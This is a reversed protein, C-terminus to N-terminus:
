KVTGKIDVTPYKIELIVNDPVSLYRGDLSMYKDINFTSQSYSGGSKNVLKVNVTDVVGRVKNLETFVDTIYFREGIYMTKNFKLVLAQIANDLVEYRNVDENSVVEFEIGINVVKADLIDVTDNIMRYRNLWIKLNDKIASNSQILKGQRDESVVYMNLNRKLSDQDRVVRCRKVSGFHSPMAYTIAEYDTATVARNQTPFINLAQRRIEDTTPNRVSGIIPEENFAEISSVVSRAAQTNTVTPDNFEVIPDIVSSVAGVGANSSNTTNARYTITLTTNAPGIGLKDTGILDSPDFATDSVYDKAHRQLVVNSPEALTPTSVENDSGYGFQLTTSTQNKESTFRRAAIFPRIISPANDRTNADKNPVSKYVVDHTLYEVEFYENGEADFVSIIEVINSRNITVKKFREFAGITVTTTAFQGSIVQGQAKVAWSSPTGDASTRAAVIQNSPNDFRVDEMLIFSGGTSSLVSNRKLIPMYRTDPGLGTSNAPVIAYLSVMGTTSQAGKFKYGMQKAIRIVNEYENATDLFSENVQYDLYFSLVDGVYAVTDLMLSGFSAESFDQFSQPYYRKAHNILDERISDFTRNTYNIPINRKAM